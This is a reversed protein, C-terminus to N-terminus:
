ASLSIVALSAGRRRSSRSRRGGGEEEKRRGGEEKRRRGGGEEEKRRGGEEKRRGGEGKGRGGGGRQTAAPMISYGQMLLSRSLSPAALVAVAM